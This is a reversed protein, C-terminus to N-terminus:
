RIDDGKKEKYIKKKKKKKKWSLHGVGGVREELERWKSWRNGLLEDEEMGRKEKCRKKKKKEQKKKKKKKKKWSFHSEVEDRGGYRMKRMGWKKGQMEEEEEEGEEEEGEEEGEEEECSFHGVGNDRVIELSGRATVCKPFARPTLSVPTIASRLYM